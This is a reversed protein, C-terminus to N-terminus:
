SDMKDAVFEAVIGIAISGALLIAIIKPKALVIALDFSIGIGSM